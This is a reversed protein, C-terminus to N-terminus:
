AQAAARMDAVGAPQLVPLALRAGTKPSLELALAVLRCDAAMPCQACDRAVKEAPMGRPVRAFGHREFFEGERTVALVKEFGRSRARKVASRLLKGGLGSGRAKEAVVLSRIEALSGGYSELAVCGAVRGQAEAVLFDPVARYLQALTRPLLGGPSVQASILAHIAGVDSPRARRIRM